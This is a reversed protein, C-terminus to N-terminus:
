LWKMGVYFLGTGILIFLLGSIKRHQIYGYDTVILRNGIETLRIITNPRFLCLYGTIISFVGILVIVVFM